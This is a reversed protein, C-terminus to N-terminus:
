RPWKARTIWTSGPCGRTSIILTPPQVEALLDTVDDNRLADFIPQAQQQTTCAKLFAKHPEADDGSLGFMIFVMYDIFSDWESTLADLARIQPINMFDAIRAQSDDLILHTVRDPHAVVYAVAMPGSWGLGHLIFKGIGLKDLVAELDLMRAELSLDEATRDSLGCGRPDFQVVRFSAALSDFFESGQEWELQSHTFPLSPVRLITPGEGATGFAIRVGDAATAYQM